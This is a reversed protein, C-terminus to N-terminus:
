KAEATTPEETPAETPAETSTGQVDGIDQLIFETPMFPDSTEEGSAGKITFFLAVGLGIIVAVLVAWLAASRVKKLKKEKITNAKRNKKEEKYADVKKQSM